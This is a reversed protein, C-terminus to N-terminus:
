PDRLILRGPKWLSGLLLECVYIRINLDQSASRSFRDGRMFAGALMYAVSLERQRRRRSGATKSRWGEFVIGILYGGVLPSSGSFFGALNLGGLLGNISAGVVVGVGYVLMTTIAREHRDKKSRIGRLLLVGITSLLILVVISVALAFWLSPRVIPSRSGIENVTLSGAAVLAFPILYQLVHNFHDIWDTPDSDSKADLGGACAMEATLSLLSLGRSAIPAIYSNVVMVGSARRSTGRCTRNSCQCAVSKRAGRTWSVALRSSPRPPLNIRM